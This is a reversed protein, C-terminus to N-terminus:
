EIVVQHVESQCEAGDMSKATNKAWRRRIASEHVGDVSGSRRERTQFAAQAV